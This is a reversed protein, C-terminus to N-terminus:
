SVQSDQQKASIQLSVRLSLRLRLMSWSLMARRGPSAKWFAGYSRRMKPRRGEAFRNSRHARWASSM